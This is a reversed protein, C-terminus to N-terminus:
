NIITKKKAWRLLESEENAIGDSCAGKFLEVLEKGTRTGFYNEISMLDTLRQNEKTEKLEKLETQKKKTPKSYVSYGDRGSRSYKSSPVFVVRVFYGEKKLEKAREAVESKFFGYIGTFTYNDDILHQAAKTEM